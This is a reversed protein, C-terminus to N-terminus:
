NLIIGYMPLTKTFYEKAVLIRTICIGDKMCCLQMVYLSVIDKLETQM